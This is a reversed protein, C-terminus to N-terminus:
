SGVKTTVSPVSERDIGVLHFLAEAVAPMPQSKGM